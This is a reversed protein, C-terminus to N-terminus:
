LVFHVHAEKRVPLPLPLHADDRDVAVPKMEGWLVGHTEIAPELSRAQDPPACDWLESSFLHPHAM